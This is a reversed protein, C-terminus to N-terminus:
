TEKKLRMLKILEEAIDHAFGENNIDREDDVVKVGSGELGNRLAGFLADDANPDAFPGGPNSLMSLGGRPLWVQVLNPNKAQKLKGAIFEGIHRAEEASSRMLTVAPNHEYILRDGDKTFQEPVTNRPGFNVMDTAGLSVIWPIDLSSVGSLRDPGASMVSGPVLHDAIETTTLDLVADLHGERALRELSKGGSGTAHFVFTSIPYHSELHRRIADVGPTTVGFMTIGVQKKADTFQPATQQKQKRQDQLRAAYALAAGAIAAGANSLVDRLVSNLGAIDVVSYMLTIDAEGVYPAVDGSAVTSVIFKPFGIPLADRMVGAALSTGGSGGASIIGHISGADFLEKVARTACATMFKM